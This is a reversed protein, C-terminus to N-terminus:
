RRKWLIQQKEKTNMARISQQRKRDQVRVKTEVQSSSNSEEGLICTSCIERSVPLSMIINCPQLVPLPSFPAAMLILTFRRLPQLPCVRSIASEDMCGLVTFPLKSSAAMTGAQTRLSFIDGVPDFANDGGLM